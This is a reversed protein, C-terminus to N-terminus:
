RLDRRIVDVINKANATSLGADPRLALAYATQTGDPQAVTM